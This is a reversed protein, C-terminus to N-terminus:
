PRDAKVRDGVKFTFNVVTCKSIDWEDEGYPAVDLQVMAFDSGPTVSTIRGIKGSPSKVKTGVSYKANFASILPRRYKKKSKDWVLGSKLAKMRVTVIQATSGKKNADELQKNLNDIEADSISNLTSLTSDNGVVGGVQYPLIRFGQVELAKRNLDNDDCMYIRGLRRFYLKGPLVKSYQVVPESRATVLQMSKQESSMNLANKWAIANQVVKNTTCVSNYTSNLLRVESVRVEDVYGNDWKVTLRSGMKEKVTGSRRKGVVYLYVRDGVSPTKDIFPDGTVANRAIERDSRERLGGNIDIEIRDTSNM